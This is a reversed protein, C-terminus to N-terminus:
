SHVESHSLILQFITMKAKMKVNTRKLEASAMDNGSVVVVILAAVV